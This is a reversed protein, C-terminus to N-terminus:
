LHFYNIFKTNDYTAQNQTAQGEVVQKMGKMRTCLDKNRKLIVHINYKKAIEKRLPVRNTLQTNFKKVFSSKKSNTKTSSIASEPRRMDGKKIMKEIHSINNNIHERISKTYEEDEAKTSTRPRHSMSNDGNINHFADYHTFKTASQSGATFPRHTKSMIKNSSHHAPFANGDGILTNLTRTTENVENRRRSLEVSKDLGKADRFLNVYHQEIQTSLEDKKLKQPTVTIYALHRYIEKATFKPETNLVVKQNTASMLRRQHPMGTHSRPTNNMSLGRASFGRAVKPHKQQILSAGIQQHSVDAQHLSPENDRLIGSYHEDEETLEPYHSHFDRQTHSNSHGQNKLNRPNATHPRVRQHDNKAPTNFETNHSNPINLFGNNSVQFISPQISKNLFLADSTTNLSQHQSASPSRRSIRLPSNTRSRAPANKAENIKQRNIEIRERLQQKELQERQYESHKYVKFFENMSLLDNRTAFYFPRPEHSKVSASKSLHEQLQRMTTTKPQTGFKDFVTDSIVAELESTPIHRINYKNPIENRQQTNVFNNFERLSKKGMVSGKIIGRQLQSRQAKLNNIDM